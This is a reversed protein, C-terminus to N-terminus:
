DKVPIFVIYFITSAENQIFLLSSMKNFVFFLLILYPFSEFKDQFAMFRSSFIVVAFSTELNQNIM